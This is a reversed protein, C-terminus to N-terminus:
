RVMQGLLSGHPERNRPPFGTAHNVAESSRVHLHSNIPTQWGSRGEMQPDLSVQDASSYTYTQPDNQVGFLHTTRAGMTSPVPSGHFIQGPHQDFM